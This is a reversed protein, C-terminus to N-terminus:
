GEPPHWGRDVCVDRFAAAADAREPANKAAALRLARLATTLRPEDTQALSGTAATLMGTFLEPEAGGDIWASVRSCADQAAADLGDGACGPLVCVLLLAAGAGM